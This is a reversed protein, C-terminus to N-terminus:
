KVDRLASIIKKKNGEFDNKNGPTAPHPFVWIHAHAVEDGMVKSWIADQKFAVKQARAIKGAIEFYNGLTGLTDDRGIMSGMKSHTESHM